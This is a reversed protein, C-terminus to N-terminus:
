HPLRARPIIPSLENPASERGYKHPAHSRSHNANADFAHSPSCSSPVETRWLLINTQGLSAIVAPSSFLAYYRHANPNYHLIAFPSIFNHIPRLNYRRM